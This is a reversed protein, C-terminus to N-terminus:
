MSRAAFPCCGHRPASVWAKAAPSSGTLVHPASTSSALCHSQRYALWPAPVRMLKPFVRDWVEQNDLTAMLSVHPYPWDAPLMRPVNGIRKTLLMWRLNPTARLLAWLDDRWEQPVENDFVDAESACFIRPRCGTAVAKRNWKLPGEWYGKSTRYRPIGPGWGPVCGYRKNDAEAYCNRCADSVKTCGIWPNFTHDTWSISSNEAM